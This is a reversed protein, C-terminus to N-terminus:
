TAWLSRRSNSYLKDDRPYVDSNFSLRVQNQKYENYQHSLKKQNPLYDEVCKNAIDYLKSLRDDVM